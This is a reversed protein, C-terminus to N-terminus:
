RPGRDNITSSYFIKFVQPIVSVSSPRCVRLFSPGIAGGGSFPNEGITNCYHCLDACKEICKGTFGLYLNISAIEITISKGTLEALLNYKM